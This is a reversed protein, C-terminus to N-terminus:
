GRFNRYRGHARRALAEKSIVTLHKPECCLRNGCTRWVTSGEPVTRGDFEVVKYAVPRKVTKATTEDVDWYAAYGSSTVDALWSKCKGLVPKVMVEECWDHIEAMTKPIKLKGRAAEVTPKLNAETIAKEALLDERTLDKVVMHNPNVCMRDGCTLHIRQTAQPYERATGSKVWLYKQANVLYTKDFRKQLIGPSGNKMKEGTWIHCPDPHTTNPVEKYKSLQETAITM